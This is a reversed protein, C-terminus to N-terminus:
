RDGGQAILADIQEKMEKTIEAYVTEYLSQDVDKARSIRDRAPISFLANMDAGAKLAERGLHDYALVMELLRFQKGFSTYSDTDM